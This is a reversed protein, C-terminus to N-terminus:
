RTRASRRWAGRGFPLQGRVLQTRDGWGGREPEPAPEGSGSRAALVAVLAALEAEDPTGRVVRLAPRAPETAEPSTV